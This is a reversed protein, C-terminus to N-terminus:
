AITRKLFMIREENIIQRQTELIMGPNEVGLEPIKFHRQPGSETLDVLTGCKPM